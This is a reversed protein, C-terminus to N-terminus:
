LNRTIMDEPLYERNGIREKRQKMATLGDDIIYLLEEAGNSSIIMEYDIYSKQYKHSIVNLVKAMSKLTNNVIKRNIPELPTAARNLALSLDKHALLRNRRDRCTESDKIVTKIKRELEEKIDDSVLSSLCRISLNDKGCSKIPDTLRGIHMLISEWLAAQALNFFLPASSNLIELRSRKTGFLVIYENWRLYLTGLENWLAHYVIGLEEGMKELHEKRVKEPTLEKSM